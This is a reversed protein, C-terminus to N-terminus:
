SNLSNKIDVRSQVLAKTAALVKQNRRGNYITKKVTSIAVGAMEAIVPVDGHRLQDRIEM